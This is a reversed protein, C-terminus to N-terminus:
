LGRPNQPFPRGQDMAYPDRLLIKVRYGLRSGRDNMTRDAVQLESAPDGGELTHKAPPDIDGKSGVVRAAVIGLIDELHHLHSGQEGLDAM